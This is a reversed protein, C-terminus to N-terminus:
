LPAALADIRGGAVLVAAVVGISKQADNAGHSFALAASMAWEGARVPTRWRRTARRGLRRVCRIVMLAALAGLVPSIALGVLTGVV